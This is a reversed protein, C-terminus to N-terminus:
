RRYSFKGHCGPMCSGGQDEAIFNMQMEWNGFGIREEVLFARPSGHINHCMRCNRGKNGNIHLWHLNQSGNRFGTSGDTEPANMLEPDHCLFCLAFNEASAPLYDEEPYRDVLLARVDSGHSRHCGLCGGLDIATHPTNRGVVLRRINLTLTSDTRFDREHCALCLDPDPMQLLFSGSSGHADHCSLCEGQEHPYHPFSQQMPEEHCFYCLEPVKDMLRYGPNGDSPHPAGTSEHCNGCANEAPYHMREYEVLDSHCERCDPEPQSGPIHEPVKLTSLPIALIILFEILFFQGM